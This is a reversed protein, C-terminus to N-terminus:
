LGAEAPSKKRSYEAEAVADGGPLLAHPGGPRGEIGAIPVAVLPPGRPPAYAGTSLRIGCLPRESAPCQVGNGFNFPHCSVSGYNSWALCKSLTVAAIPPRQAMTQAAVILRAAYSGSVMEMSLLTSSRAIAAKGCWCRVSSPFARSAELM